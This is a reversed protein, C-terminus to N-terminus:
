PLWDPDGANDSRDTLQVADSGDANLVHIAFGGRNLSFAIRRGDPSWAPDTCFGSYNTLQIVDTGDTSMTYLEYEDNQRNSCFAIRQGDPSWAPHYDSATNDTLPVANTGDANMVFIETDEGDRVSNFVIQRGDPSWKPNRDLSSNDTLPVVRTGDANMVFIEADEGDRWSAFVIHMGDPSWDADSDRVENHTLRVMNTGDANMVFIEQDSFNDWDRGSSFLIKRGDHSWVPRTESVFNDTLRRVETGDANTIYIEKHRRDGPWASFVIRGVESDVQEANRIIAIRATENSYGQQDISAGQLPKRVCDRYQDVCMWGRIQVPFEGEIKPTIRLVLTRDDAPSWSPDDSEVLLYNAPFQRNNDDHYIAAGPHHFTVSSLGTTYSLVEVDATSSSYGSSSGGAAEMTLNPFSVSIGGHEGSRQLDHMRVRLIFSEGSAVESKSVEWDLKFPALDSAPPSPEPTAAAVVSQDRLDQRWATDYPVQLWRGLFSQHETMTADIAAQFGATVDALTNELAELGDATSILESKLGGVTMAYDLMKDGVVPTNSVERLAIDLDVAIKTATVARRKATRVSSVLGNSAEVARGFLADMDSAKVNSADIVSIRDAAAELVDTNSRVSNLEMDLSRIADAAADVGPYVQALVDLASVNGFAPIDVKLPELEDFVRVVESTAARVGDLDEDTNSVSRTKTNVAGTDPAELTNRWAYSHFVQGAIRPDIVPTGSGSFVALRDGYKVISYSIDDHTHRALESGEPGADANGPVVVIVEKVVEKEVPVEVLVEKEVIIEKEVVKEVPVEVRVEKEVVVQKEVVVTQVVPVDVEREVLVTQVVPVDIKREVLVTQVVPVDVEKEVEVVKRVVVTKVVTNEATCGSATSM